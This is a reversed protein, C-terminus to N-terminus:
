IHIAKAYSIIRYTPSLPLVCTMGELCLLIKTPFDGERTQCNFHVAWM